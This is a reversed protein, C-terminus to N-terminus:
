YCILLENIVFIKAANFYILNFDIIERKNM